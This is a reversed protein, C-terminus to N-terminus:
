GPLRPPCGRIGQWLPQPRDKGPHLGARRDEQKERYLAQGMQSGGRPHALTQPRALTDTLTKVSDRIVRDTEGKNVEYPRVQYALENIVDGLNLANLMGMGFDVSFKLGPEGSAAKIGDTQQFLLVRFGEFGANQLAFRYEAEYMGFRCPGCSGATFFVYNDIIQQRTEGQQELKQLYRVLNGVTFYTPNCQGNNGFEKGAQFDAVEPTPINECKYGSGHFVAKIMEEHKWTLGGFLITVYDREPGTFTREIPKKFERMRALGAQARLRAREADIRAQIEVEFDTQVIENVVVAM